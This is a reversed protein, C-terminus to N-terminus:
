LTIDQNTYTDVLVTQTVPTGGIDCSLEWTGLSVYQVIPTGTYDLTKTITGDTVTITTNDSASITLTAFSDETASLDSVVLTTSDSEAGDIEATVTYTGAPVNEITAAGTDDAIATYINTGDALTVSANAITTINVKHGAETTPISNGQVWSGDSNYIYVDATNIIWAISGQAIKFRGKEASSFYYPNDPLDDVNDCFLDYHDLSINPSEWGLHKMNYVSLMSQM